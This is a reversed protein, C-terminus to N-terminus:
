EVDLVFLNILFPYDICAYNYVSKRLHIRNNNKIFSEGAGDIKSRKNSKVIIDANSINHLLNFDIKYLSLPLNIKKTIDCSIQAPIEKYGEDINLSSFGLTYAYEKLELM